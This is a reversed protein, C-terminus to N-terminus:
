GVQGLLVNPFMTFFRRHKDEWDIVRQENNIVEIFLRGKIKMPDM